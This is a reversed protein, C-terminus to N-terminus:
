PKRRGPKVRRAEELSKDWIFHAVKEPLGHEAYAQAFEVRSKATIVPPDDLSATLLQLFLEPRHIALSEM